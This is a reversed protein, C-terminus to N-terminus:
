SDGHTLEKNSVFMPSVFFQVYRACRLQCARGQEGESSVQVVCYSGSQERLVVLQEANRDTRIHQSCIGECSWTLRVISWLNHDFM